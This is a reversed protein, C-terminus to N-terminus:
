FLDTGKEKKERTASNNEDREEERARLLWNADGRERGGAGIKAL